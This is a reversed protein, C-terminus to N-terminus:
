MRYPSSPYARFISKLFYKSLMRWSTSRSFIPFYTTSSFAILVKSAIRLALLISMDKVSSGAYISLTNLESSYVSNSLLSRVPKLNMSFDMPM